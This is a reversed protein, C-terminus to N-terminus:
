RGPGVAWGEGRHWRPEAGPATLAGKPHSDPGWVEERAFWVPGAAPALGKSSRPLCFLVGGIPVEGTGDAAVGPSGLTFGEAPRAKFFM